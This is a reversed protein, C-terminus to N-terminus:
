RWYVWPTRPDMCHLVLEQRPKAKISGLGPKLNRKLRNILTVAIPQLIKETQSYGYAIYLNYLSQEGRLFSESDNDNNDDRTNDDNDDNNDDHYHTNNENNDNGSQQHYKNDDNINDHNTNINKIDTIIISLHILSSCPMQLYKYTFITLRIMVTGLINIM